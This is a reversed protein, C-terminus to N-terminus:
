ETTEVDKRLAIMVRSLTKAEWGAVTPILEGGSDRTAWACIAVKQGTSQEACVAKGGGDGTAVNTVKFGNTTAQKRLKDVFKAPNKESQKMKAGLFVLAGEPGRAKDAQNYVGSKVYSVGTFQTKFQQEATALQSKLTAEQTKDRKMGGATSPIAIKHKEPGRTVLVAALAGGILALVVVAAVIGIILGKRSKKPPATPPYPPAGSTESPPVPPPPPPTAGETAGPGVGEAPTPTPEGSPPTQESM